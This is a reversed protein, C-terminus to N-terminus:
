LEVDEEFRCEVSPVKGLVDVVGAFSRKDDDVASVMVRLSCNQDM